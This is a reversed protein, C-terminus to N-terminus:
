RFNNDNFKPSILLLFRIPKEITQIAIYIKYDLNLNDTDIFIELSDYGWKQPVQSFSITDVKSAYNM